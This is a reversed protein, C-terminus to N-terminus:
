ARRRVRKIYGARELERLFAAEVVGDTAESRFTLWAPEVRAPKPQRKLCGGVRVMEDWSYRRM